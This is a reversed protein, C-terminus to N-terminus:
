RSPKTTAHDALCARVCARVCTSVGVPAPQAPARAWGDVLQRGPPGPRHRLYQWPFVHSGCVVLVSLWVRAKGKSKEWAGSTYFRMLMVANVSKCKRMDYGEPCLALENPLGQKGDPTVHLTYTGVPGDGDDRFPNRGSGVDPEIEHDKITTIPFGVQAPSTCAHESSGHM